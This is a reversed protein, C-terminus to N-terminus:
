LGLVKKWGNVIHLPNFSIGGFSLMAMMFIPWLVTIETERKQKPFFAYVLFFPLYWIQFYPLTFTPLLVFIASLSLLPNRKLMYVAFLLTVALTLLVAFSQSVWPLQPHSSFANVGNMVFEPRTEVLFPASLVATFGSIVALIAAAIVKKNRIMGSFGQKSYLKMAGVIILPLLFLAPQYKFTLSLGMFLLFYDYRENVYMTLAILSFLFPVADFMGNASYVILPVYLAYVALLKLLPFMKRKWFHQLFYYLSVHSFLLFVLIETKFVFVQNVGSQLLFGFPLFLLVSGLPYLQPMQPWTVFKYYSNDGSALEGLPTDFISFGVKTFLSSSYPNRAQDTYWNEFTGFSNTNVALLFLWFALSLLILILLIRRSKRSLQGKREEERPMSAGHFAPPLLLLTVAGLSSFFLIKAPTTLWSYPFLVMPKQVSVEFDVQTTTNSDTFFVAEYYDTGATFSYTVDAASVTSYCTGNYTQISFNIPSNAAKHVSISINSDEQFSGLGYRLMELPTLKFSDDIIVQTETEGTALPYLSVVALAVSLMLLLLAAFLLVKSAALQRM